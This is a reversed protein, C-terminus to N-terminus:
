KLLSKYVDLLFNEDNKKSSFAVTIYEKKNTVDSTFPEKVETRNDYKGGSVVYGLKEIKEKYNM